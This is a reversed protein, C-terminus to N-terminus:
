KMKLSKLMKEFTPRLQSFGQDPAIFVAYLLSGEQRPLVVLWDHERAAQGTKDKIPSTGVMDVSKGPVGNVRIDQDKGMTQLDPNSQRISTILQQTAAEIDGANEPAFGNILVGYAVANQSVGGQPAITVASNQDGYVQWNSPYSISFANHNLTQFDSSPKVAGSSPAQQAEGTGAGGQKARQAIEQATYAKVGMAQQRAQTFNSSDTQFNKQPFSAVEKAIAAERNGPNPHDSFFQPGRAGGEQELKKFFNAMEAPNYGAMYMIRAGVNDAQAEADRSYKLFVSGAAFSIGLKALQAGAGGGLMGGLISLPVQAAMQKSAQKTSHRMYVHSMEHAIVGALQAENDAAQITGVNIFLPGGPLAFANIDKEQVVHFEYPWSPQPMVAVLKKGLQQVYKSVPHSDPLVPMQQRVQAANEKGIQVEEQTSILNFGSPSPLSVRQALLQPAALLGVLALTLVRRTVASKMRKGKLM